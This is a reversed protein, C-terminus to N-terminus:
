EPPPKLPKGGIDGSRVGTQDMFFSLVGTRGYHAPEAGATFTKADKALEIHFHYGTSETGELDKPLLGVTILTPMDGFVGNHQQQYALQALSIRTLVDRVESHHTDIRAQFFFRNGAKKVIAQNEKDGIIWQGDVRILAVPETEAQAPDNDKPVKVFVAAVDGSIQEGSIEVKEPIANAAKEFDSKLDDFEQPKLGAIAPQYISMGFADVFRKEHMAKYFERVTDSPSRPPTQAYILNAPVCFVLLLSFFVVARRATAYGHRSM